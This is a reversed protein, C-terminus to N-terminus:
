NGHELIYIEVVLMIKDGMWRLALKGMQAAMVNLPTDGMALSLGMDRIMPAVRDGEKKNLASAVSIVTEQWTSRFREELNEVM